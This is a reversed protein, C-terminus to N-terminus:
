KCSIYNIIASHYNVAKNSGFDMINLENAAAAHTAAATQDVSATAAEM